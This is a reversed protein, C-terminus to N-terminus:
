RDARVPREDVDACVVEDDLFGAGRALHERDPRGVIRDDHQEVGAVIRAAVELQHALRDACKM